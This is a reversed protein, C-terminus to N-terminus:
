PLPSWLANPEPVFKTSALLQLATGSLVTATGFSILSVKQIKGVGGSILWVQTIAVEPFKLLWSTAQEPTQRLEVNGEGANDLRVEGAVSGSVITESFICAEGVFKLTVFGIGPAAPFFEEYLKKGVKSNEVNEVQESRIPNTKIIPSELECGEEVGNGVELRCESFVAIENDKGPNEANSGLLVGEETGLGDCTIGIGQAENILTFNHLVNGIKYVRADFNHTKGAILRTGGITFYPATEAQALSAGVVALAFM